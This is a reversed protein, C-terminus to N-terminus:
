VAKPVIQFRRFGNLRSVEEITRLNEQIPEFLHVEVSDEFAAKAAAAYAGRFAGIDYIVDGPRLHNLFFRLEERGQKSESFFWYSEYFARRPIQLLRKSCPLVCPVTGLKERRLWGRIFQGWQPWPLNRLQVLKGPISTARM